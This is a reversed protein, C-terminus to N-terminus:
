DNGSGIQVTPRLIPKDQSLNFIIKENVVVLQSAVNFKITIVYLYPFYCYQSSVTTTSPSTVYRGYCVAGRDGSGDHSWGAFLKVALLNKDSSVGRHNSFRRTVWFENARVSGCLFVHAYNM